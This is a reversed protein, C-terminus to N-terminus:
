AAAETRERAVNALDAVPDHEPGAESWALRRADRALEIDGADVLRRALVDLAARREAEGGGALARDVRALAAELPRQAPEESVAPASRRPWLRWALWGGVALVIAAAAGVLLWGLLQSGGRMRLPPLDEADAQAVLASPRVSVDSRVGSSLRSAVEVSPWELPLTVVDGQRPSYRVLGLPLEIVREAEGPVCARDVCQIDYRFRLVTTRGLDLRETEIPGLRRFPRFAAATVVSGPDVRESDVVLELEAVLRDGFTYRSPVISAELVVPDGAPPEVRVERGDGALVVLAVVGGVAALGALVALARKM